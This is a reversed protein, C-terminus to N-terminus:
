TNGEREYNFFIILYIIYTKITDNPNTPTLLFCVIVLYDNTSHTDVEFRQTDMRFNHFLRIKLPQPEEQIKLHTRPDTTIYNKQPFFLGLRGPAQSARYGRGARRADGDARM